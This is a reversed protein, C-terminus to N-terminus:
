RESSEALPYFKNEEIDIRKKLTGFIEETELAVQDVGSRPRCSHSRVEVEMPDSSHEQDESEQDHGQVRTPGPLLDQDRYQEQNEEPRQRADAEVNSCVGM